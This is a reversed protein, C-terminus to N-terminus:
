FIPTQAFGGKQNTLLKYFFGPTIGWIWERQPPGPKQFKLFFRSIVHGSFPLNILTKKGFNKIAKGSKAGGGGKFLATTFGQGVDLRDGRTRTLRDWFGM